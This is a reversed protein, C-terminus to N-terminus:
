KTMRSKFATYVTNVREVFELTERANFYGNRVVPDRYYRPKSKMLAAHRVGTHWHRSDLGYKEALAIADLIHGLGSNYAAIVFDRRRDADPILDSLAKDLTAILRVGASICVAPDSLRDPDQGMAAATGPMVQMVGRAGAWSVLEPQFRSEVYAIAAALRWDIGNDRCATRFLADFPSLAGGPYVEPIDISSGVTLSVDALAQRPLRYYRTYMNGIATSDNRTWRDVAAALATDGSAVAWRSRQDLSLRLSFDLAPWKPSEYQASESDIVTMEAEQRAVMRVLDAETVTDRDITEIIIGGGIEADLAHLRHEYRSDLDVTVTHGVLDTVVRAMDDGRPQVLVQRSIREPGCHRVMSQYEGTVPVPAAALDAEGERLMRIMERAGPAVTIKLPRGSSEAFDNILEYDYGMVTDRYLYYSYPTNLTVVRLTDHTTSPSEDATHHTDSAPSLRIALIGLSIGTALITYGTAKIVSSRVPNKRRTPQPHPHGPTNM